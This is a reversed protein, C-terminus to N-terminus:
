HLSSTFMICLIYKLSFKNRFLYKYPFMFLFIVLDNVSVTEFISTRVELKM